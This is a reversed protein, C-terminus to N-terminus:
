ASAARRFREVAQTAQQKVAEDCDDQLLQEIEESARLLLHKLAFVQQELNRMRHILSAADDEPM